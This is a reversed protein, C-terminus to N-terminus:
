EKGQERKKRSRFDLKREEGKLLRKINGWHRVVALLWFAAYNIVQLLNGPDMSIVVTAAITVGLLSALSVIRILGIFAIVLLALVIAILPHMFLFAGFMTAIGKGGRFGYYVPWNHGIVVFLAAIHMGENGAVLRGLWTALLGKAVDLVFTSVGPLWGFTRLMNTAGANGSGYNRIDKKEVNSSIIIASSFSGLLYAGVAVALYLLIEM